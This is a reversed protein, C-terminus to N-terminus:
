NSIKEIQIWAYNKPRGEMRARTQPCFPQYENLNNNLKYRKILIVGKKALEAESFNALENQSLDVESVFVKTFDQPHMKVDIDSNDLLEIRPINGFEDGLIKEYVYSAIFCSDIKIRSEELLEM